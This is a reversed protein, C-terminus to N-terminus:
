LTFISLFLFVLKLNKLELRWPSPSHCNLDFNKILSGKGQAYPHCYLRDTIFM